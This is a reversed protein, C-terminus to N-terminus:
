FNAELGGAFKVLKNQNREWLDEHIPCARALRPIRLADHRGDDLVFGEARRGWLNRGQGYPQKRGLMVYYSPTGVNQFITQHMHDITRASHPTDPDGGKWHMNTLFVDGLDDQHEVYGPPGVIDEATIARLKRERDGWILYQTELSGECFIKYSDRMWVSEGRADAYVLSINLCVGTEFLIENDCGAVKHARISQEFSTAMDQKTPGKPTWREDRPYDILILVAYLKQPFAERLSPCIIAVGIKCKDMYNLWQENEFIRYWIAEHQQEKPPTIGFERWLM